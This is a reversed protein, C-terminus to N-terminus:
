SKIRVFEFCFQSDSLGFPMMMAMMQMMMQQINQLFNRIM